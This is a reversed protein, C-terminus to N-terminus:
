ALRSFGSIDVFGRTKICSLGSFSQTAKSFSYQMNLLSYPLSLYVKVIRRARRESNLGSWHKEHLLLVFGYQRLPL